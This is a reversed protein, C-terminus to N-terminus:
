GPATEQGDVNVTVTRDLTKVALVSQGLQFGLGLLGVCLLSGLIFGSKISQPTM